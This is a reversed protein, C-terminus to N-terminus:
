ALDSNSLMQHYGKNRRHGGANRFKFGFNRFKNIIYETTPRSM